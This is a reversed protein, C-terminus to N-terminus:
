KRQELCSKSGQESCFSQRNNRHFQLEPIEETEQWLVSSCRKEQGMEQVAALLLQQGVATVPQQAGVGLARQLLFTFSALLLVTYFTGRSQM